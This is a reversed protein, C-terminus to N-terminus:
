LVESLAACTRASASGGSGANSFATIVGAMAEAPADANLQLQAAPKAPADRANAFAASPEQDAEPPASASGGPDLAM